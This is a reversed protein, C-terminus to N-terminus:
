LWGNQVLEEITYRRNELPRSRIARVVAAVGEAYPQAGEVRTEVRISACADGIEILHYAHRGLRDAPIGLDRAQVQPDRISRIEQPPLGLCAAMQVATGAVTTKGAQHSETLRVPHGKFLHGCSALMAMFKVMLINSNACEVVPFLTTAALGTGTSLEVLPSGSQGCFAAVEALQRGSGCHIVISRGEEPRGEWPSIPEALLRPLTTRIQM